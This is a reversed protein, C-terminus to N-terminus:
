TADMSEEYGFTPEAKMHLFGPLFHSVVKKDVPHKNPQEAHNPIKPHPIKNRHNDPDTKSKSTNHRYNDPDTKHHTDPVKTKNTKTM